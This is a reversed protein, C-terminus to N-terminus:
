AEELTIITDELRMAVVFRGDIKWIGPRIVQVLSGPCIGMEALRQADPGTIETIRKM